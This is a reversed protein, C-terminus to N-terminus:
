LFISVIMLCVKNVVINNYMGKLYMYIPGSTLRDKTIESELKSGTTLSASCPHQIYGNLLQTLTTM